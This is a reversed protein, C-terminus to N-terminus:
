RAAEIDLSTSNTGRFGRNQECRSMSFIINDLFNPGSSCKEMDKTRNLNISLRPYYQTLNGLSM